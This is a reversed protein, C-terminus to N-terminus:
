VSVQSTKISLIFKNLFVFIILFSHKEVFNRRFYAFAINIM